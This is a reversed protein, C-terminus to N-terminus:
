KCFESSRLWNIFSNNAPWFITSHDFNSQARNGLGENTKSDLAMRSAMMASKVSKMGTITALPQTTLHNINVKDKILVLTQGLDVVGIKKELNYLSRSIPLLHRHVSILGELRTDLVAVL